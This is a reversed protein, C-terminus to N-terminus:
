EAETKVEFGEGFFDDELVDGTEKDSEPDDSIVVQYNDSEADEVEDKTYIGMTVDPAYTRGFFAAARYRLM